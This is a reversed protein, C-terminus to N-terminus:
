TVLTSCVAAPRMIKPRTSSPLLLGRLFAPPEPAFYARRFTRGCLAPDSIQTGRAPSFGSHMEMPNQFPNQYPGFALRKPPSTSTDIVYQGTFSAPTGLNADEIQHCLTCSVGDMAAAHLSHSPSLFGSGLVQVPSGDTLAQYRAMGMHCRSCKEEIVSKLAPNRHVESSIKAQWLPDKGSNAMMTSRWHADISVDNGGSDRLGSHCFACVGSGAFDATQFTTLTTGMMGGGGGGCCGGGGGGEHMGALVPYSILCIIPIALVVLLIPLSTQRRWSVRRM